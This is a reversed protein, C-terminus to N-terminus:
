LLSEPDVNIKWAPPLSSLIQHLETTKPSQEAAEGNPTWEGPNLKLLIHRSYLNKIKPIFAPYSLPEWKGLKQELVKTEKELAAENKGDKTIKILTKFPPYGFRERTELEKKYFGSINGKAADEFITKDELRTQTLFTKKAMARLKLLTNFIKENIRFDPLAFLADMSIVAVREVPFNVYSFMIETAVLIARRAEAFEGAIERARKETKVSDGDMRFLKFEPFLRAADEAIRQAGIGLAKLRWSGCYPCREPAPTETLCKHCVFKANGAKGGDKHLVLPSSCKECLLARFCDGCLTSPSHGRRGAFLIIKEDRARAEGIMKEAEAGLASFKKGGGESKDPNSIIQEAGSLMRAAPPKGAKFYTEARVLDDGLILRAGIEGRLIEAAKRADAYPRTRAKYLPSNENEVALAGIDERPLSLFSKTAIILVPHESEVAAKWLERIKKKAMKGHLALAHKEVGKKIEESFKEVASATPLCFFVSRKGAFEERVIKKYYQIREARPAQLLVTERWRKEGADARKAPRVSESGGELVAAPTFDKIARGTPCVFYKAIKRCASIFEPTLFPEAKVSKLARLAFESKKVATKASKIDEASIVIAPATKKRVPIEVLSGARVNKSTFYSLNERFVGKAIPIVTVLKM